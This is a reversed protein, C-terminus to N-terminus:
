KFAVKKYVIEPPFKIPSKDSNSAFILQTDRGKPVFLSEEHKSKSFQSLDYDVTNSFVMSGDKIGTNFLCVAVKYIEGNSYKCTNHFCGMEYTKARILQLYDPLMPISSAKKSSYSHVIDKLFAPGKAKAANLATKEITDFMNKYNFSNREKSNSDKELDSNGKEYFIIEGQINGKTENATDTRFQTTSHPNKIPPCKLAHQWAKQMLLNNFFMKILNKGKPLKENAATTGKFVRVRLNNVFKIIDSKASYSLSVDNMFPKGYGSDKIMDGNSENVITKKLNMICIGDKFILLILLVCFLKDTNKSIFFKM